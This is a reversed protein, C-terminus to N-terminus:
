QNSSFDAFVRKDAGVFPVDVSMNCIRSALRDGLARSIEAGNLNSTFINSKGLSLRSDILSLLNNIEYETGTKAAIDDWIVLDAVRVSQIVKELYESKNTINEKIALLFRPVSIFLARCQMPTKHWIQNFYAQMLRVSWSTKGNGCNPSHIFLNRGENVFREINQEIHSLFQFVELDSKDSDLKLEIRKRQHDSLLSKEYLFDLKFKKQCFDQECDKHNCNNYYFCTM